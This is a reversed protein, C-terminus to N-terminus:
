PQLGLCRFAVRSSSLADLEAFSGPCPMLVVSREGAFIFCVPPQPAFPTKKRLSVAGGSLQERGADVHARPRRAASGGPRLKGRGLWQPTAAQLVEPRLTRRCRNILDAHGFPVVLQKFSSTALRVTSCPSPVPACPMSRGGLLLAAQPSCQWPAPSRPVGFAVVLEAGSPWQVGAPLGLRRPVGCTSNINRRNGKPSCLNQLQATRGCKSFDAQLWRLLWRSWKDSGRESGM